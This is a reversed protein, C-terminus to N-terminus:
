YIHEIVFMLVGDAVHPRGVVGDCGTPRPWAGSALIVDGSAVAQAAALAVM